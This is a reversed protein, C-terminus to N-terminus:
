ATKPNGALSYKYRLVCMCYMQTHTSVYVNVATMEKKVVYISFQIECYYRWDLMVYNIRFINIRGEM